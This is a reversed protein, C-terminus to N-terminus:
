PEDEMTIFAEPNSVAADFADMPPNEITRPDENQFIASGPRITEELYRELNSLPYGTAALKELFQAWFVGLRTAKRRLATAQFEISEEPELGPKFTPIDLIARARPIAERLVLEARSGPEVGLDALFVEFRAPAGLHAEAIDFFGSVVAWMPLDDGEIKYWRETSVDTLEVGM